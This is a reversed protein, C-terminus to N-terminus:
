RAVWRYDGDPKPARFVVVLSPFPAPDKSGGFKLRGRVFRLEGKIAWEHFWKTDTRAPVLVVVTIGKLSETYAKEMWQGISKYPPNIWVSGGVGAFFTWDATLADQADEDCDPGLWNEVKATEAVAAADLNFHFENDLQDFFAQPTEWDQKASSFHLATNM